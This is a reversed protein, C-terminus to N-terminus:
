FILTLENSYNQFRRKDGNFHIFKPFGETNKYKLTKNNIIIDNDPVNIMQLSILNTYDLEIRIANPNNLEDLYKGIWWHQDCMNLNYNQSAQKLLRARGIIVGTNMYKFFREQHPYLHKRHAPYANEEAAFLLAENRNFNDVQLTSEWELFTEIISEHSGIMVVDYADTFLLIEEPDSESSIDHIAKVKYGNSWRPIDYKQITVTSNFKNGQEILNKILREDKENNCTTIHKFGNINSIFILLIFLLKYM